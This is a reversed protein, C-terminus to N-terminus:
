HEPRVQLFHAAELPGGGAVVESGASVVVLEEEPVAVGEGVGVRLWEIVHVGVSSGDLGQRPTGPLL